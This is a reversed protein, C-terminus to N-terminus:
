NVLGRGCYHDDLVLSRLLAVERESPCKVLTEYLSRGLSTPVVFDGFLKTRTAIADDVFELAGKRVEARIPQCQVEDRSLVRVEPVAEGSPGIGYRIIQAQDSSLLKELDFSQVLLATADVTPHVYQGFCGRVTV